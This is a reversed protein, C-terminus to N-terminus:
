LAAKGPHQICENRPRSRNRIQLTFESNSALLYHQSPLLIHRLNTLRELKGEFASNYSTHNLLKMVAECDDFFNSSLIVNLSIQLGDLERWSVNM